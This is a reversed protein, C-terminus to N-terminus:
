ASSSSRRACAAVAMIALCLLPTLFLWGGSSRPIASLMGLGFLLVADRAAAPNAM